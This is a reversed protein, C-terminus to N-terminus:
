SQCPIHQAEWLIVNGTKLSKKVDILRQNASGRFLLDYSKQTRDFRGDVLVDAHDLLSMWDPNGAGTLTEWTYGTYIWVNLRDAQVSQALASLSDAQLFPEGGTLTVGQLLKDRRIESLLASVPVEEGGEIPWTHPNHCDACKHPCGQTFVAYRLGPGDVISERVRGALRLKKEDSM